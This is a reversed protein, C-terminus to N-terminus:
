VPPPCESNKLSPYQRIYFPCYSWCVVSISRTDHKWGYFVARGTTTTATCFVCSSLPLLEMAFFREATAHHVMQLTRGGVSFSTIRWFLPIWVTFAISTRSTTTITADRGGATKSPIWVSFLLPLNEPRSWLMVGNVKQFRIALLM